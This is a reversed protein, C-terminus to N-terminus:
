PVLPAYGLEALLKAIRRHGAQNLHTGDILYPQASGTGGAGNLEHRCTRLRTGRRRPPPRTPSRSPRPALFRQQWARLFSAGVLLLATAAVDTATPITGSDQIAELNREILRVGRYPGRDHAAIRETFSRRLDADSQVAVLVPVIREFFRELESGITILMEDPPQDIIPERDLQELPGLADVVVAELLGAKGGFHYHISAESTGARAAIEKTTAHALGDSRIIDLAAPFGTFSGRFGQRPTHHFRDVV